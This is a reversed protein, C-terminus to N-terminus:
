KEDNSEKLLELVRPIVKTAYLEISTLRASAKQPGQGYVMDFRTVDLVKMAHAIKKAVTEPSGVYLSGHDIEYEFQEKTYPPWGRTRGILDWSKKFNPWALHRAEEDTEAVLGPSHMGVPHAKTGLDETAHRYLEVYPAFREPAGGIIALVLPFGYRAARIVSEPSGGVGIAVDLRGKETKPFVEADKLEARTTGKWSLPTENLLEAFLGVKEEFLVEYQRLDYGFLPFSETFSGRGLIVQARGNSLADVTAFREFVRVPDDSSLVTVASALKIRKTRTAIGALVTEPSSISFDARHHEGVGIIDIGLSDALIGEEVVQRIAAAHTFLKGDDGRPLDGFTDIGFLYQKTQKNSHKDTM